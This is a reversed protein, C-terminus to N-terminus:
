SKKKTARTEYEVMTPLRERKQNPAMYNEKYLRPVKRRAEFPCKKLGTKKCHEKLLDQNIMIHRRKLNMNTGDGWTADGAGNTRIYEWRQFDKRIDAVIDETTREKSKKAM